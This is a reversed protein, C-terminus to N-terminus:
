FAGRNAIAAYAADATNFEGLRTKNGQINVDVTYKGGTRVLKEGDSYVIKGTTSTNNYVLYSTPKKPTDPNTALITTGAGASLGLLQQKVAPSQKVIKQTAPTSKSSTSGQPNVKGPTQTASTSTAASVATGTQGVIANVTDEAAKLAGPGLISDTVLKLVENIRDKGERDYQNGTWIETELFELSLQIFTPQKSGAFFSPIGQPSYNVTIDKLLAPKFRILREKDDNASAWPYLDIQVLQPYQLAATGNKSYSPLSNAKLKWIIDQLKRSEAENRPAFTWEFRHMRLGIGSFIAAVHPNPVAGAFQGIADGFEGSAQVLQSLLLTEAAKAANFSGSNTFYATAADAIGGAMKTASPSVEIDFSEKLERPLPLIFAETFQLAARAQPAPRVYNAFKMSFYYNGIHEPYQNVTNATMGNIGITNTIRDVANGATEAGDRPLVNECIEQPSVRNQESTSSQFYKDSLGVSFADGFRSSLERAINDAIGVKKLAGAFLDEVANELKDEIKNVVNDVLRNLIGKSEKKLSDINLKILAM